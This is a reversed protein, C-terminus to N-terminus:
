WRAMPSTAKAAKGGCSRSISPACSARRCFSCASRLALSSAALSVPLWTAPLWSVPPCTAPPCPVPPRPALPAPQPACLAASKTAALACCSFTMAWNKPSADGRCGTVEGGEGKGGAVENGLGARSNPAVPLPLVSTYRRQVARTSACAAWAWTSTITGSILRVGCSSARKLSRKAGM